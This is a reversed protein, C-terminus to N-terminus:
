AGAQPLMACLSTSYTNADGDAFIVGTWGVPFDYGCLSGETTPVTVKIEESTPGKWTQDVRFLFTAGPKTYADEPEMESREIVKGSFILESRAVHESASVGVCECALAIGPLLLLALGLAFTKVLFRFDRDIPSM